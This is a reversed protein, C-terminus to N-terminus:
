TKNTTCLNAYAPVGVIAYHLKLQLWLSRFRYVGTVAESFVLALFKTLNIYYKFRISAFRSVYLQTLCWVAENWIANLFKPENRKKFAVGTRKWSPNTANARPLLIKSWKFYAKIKQDKQM